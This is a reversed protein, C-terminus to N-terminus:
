ENAGNNIQKPKVCVVNGWKYFLTGHEKTIINVGRQSIMDIRGQYTSKGTQVTAMDGLNVKYKIHM